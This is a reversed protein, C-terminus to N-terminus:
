NLQHLRRFTVSPLEGFMKKYEQSFHGFHWFGWATAADTVSHAEKLMHRVGNLREARLYAVPNMGLLDQFCYQLTRRSVGVAMCLSEVSVCNDITSHLHDRAQMVIRCRRQPALHFDEETVQDGSLIEAVSALTIERLQRRFNRNQLLAPSKQCLKFSSHMFERAAHIKEPQVAKLHAHSASALVAAQSSAPLRDLLADRPVVIGGMKLGTPSFFEFGDTGSFVHVSSAHMAAGCFLGNGDTALPIGIAVTEAALKGSQFLARSTFEQFLHIDDFLLESIVGHFAGPSIQRYQQNWGQLLTAQEDFDWTSTQKISGPEVNEKCRISAIM